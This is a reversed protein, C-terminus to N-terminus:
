QEVKIVFETENKNKDNYYIEGNLEKIIEKTHYLGLGTGKFRTTYGFDFIYDKDKEKIGVGNDLIQIVLQTNEKRIIVKIQTANAKISNSFLNNFIISVELPSIEKIFRERVYTDTTSNDSSLEVVFLNTHFFKVVNTISNDFFGSFDNSPISFRGNNILNEFITILNIM